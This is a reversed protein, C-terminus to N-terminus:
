KTWILTACISSSGSPQTVNYMAPIEPGHTYLEIGAVRDPSLWSYFSRDVRVRMGDVYLNQACLGRGTLHRLDVLTTLRLLTEETAFASAPATTSRRREYFGNLELTRVTDAPGRHPTGARGATVVGSVPQPLPVLSLTPVSDRGAVPVLRTVPRYGIKRLTILAGASDLVTVAATGTMTTLTSGRTRLDVIQVEAVPLGTVSDIVTILQSVQVRQAVLPRAVVLSAAVVFALARM